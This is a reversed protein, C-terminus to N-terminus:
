GAGLVKVEGRYGDLSVRTGDPLGMAGSVSTIAPIGYERAVISAHSLVGGSESIIGGCRAFVPTWSVDSFPIVVIGTSDARGAFQQIM